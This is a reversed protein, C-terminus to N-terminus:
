YKGCVSCHTEDYFKWSHDHHQWLASWLNQEMFGNVFKAVCDDGICSRALRDVVCTCEYTLNKSLEVNLTKDATKGVSVKGEIDRWFPPRQDPLNFVVTFSSTKHLPFPPGDLVPAQWPYDRSLTFTNTAYFVSEVEQKFQRCTCSLALGTLGDRHLKSNLVIPDDVTRGCILLKVPKPETVALLFIEDRLERPLEMLRCRNNNSAEPPPAADVPTGNASGPPQQNTDESMVAAHTDTASRTGAGSLENLVDQSM